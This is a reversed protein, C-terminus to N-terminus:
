PGRLDSCSDLACTCFDLSGTDTRGLFVFNEVGKIVGLSTKGDETEVQSGEGWFWQERSGLDGAAM